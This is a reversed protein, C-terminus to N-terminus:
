KEAGEKLNPRYKPGLRMARLQENEKKAKELANCLKVIMPKMHYGMGNPYIKSKLLRQAEAILDTM